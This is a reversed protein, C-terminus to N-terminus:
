DQLNIKGSTVFKITELGAVCDSVLGKRPNAYFERALARICDDSHIAAHSAGPVVVVTSNGLTQATLNAFVPPCVPDFEGALILTPIPSVVAQFYSEPPSDPRWISCISDDIGADILAAFDPYRSLLNEETDSATRPQGEHCLIARSQANSFDGFADPDHFYEAWLQLTSDDGAAVRQLLLPVYRIYKPNLLASWITWAFDAPKLAYVQSTGDSEPPLRLPFPVQRLRKTIKIFDERMSPFVRATATDDKIRQEIVQFCTDFPRVFDSWPANPPFPSDLIVSRIGKPFARMMHLAVTTGHSVSYISLSDCSLAACVAEADAASQLSSFNDLSIGKRDLEARCDQYAAVTQRVYAERPIDHRTIEHLQRDFDSCLVPESYGTGRYDFFILAHEDRLTSFTKSRLYRPLNGLTAIGPGGHLYLLPEGAEVAAPSAMAAALRYSGAAPDEHDIPVAIQYCDVNNSDAWASDLGIEPCNCIVPSANLQPVIAVLCASIIAILYGM